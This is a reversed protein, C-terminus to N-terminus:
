QRVFYFEGTLSSAEWPTQRSQTEQRVAMRVAKFLLEVPQGPVRLQLLLHKTYPSNRGTGDDAVKGPSTAYAILCGEVADMSALGRSLTRTWSRGFPNNRCADLILLKVGMGAEDMRALVWDAAVTQFKVDSTGGLKAGIPVIYNLGELQAGHGSFYFLGVSGRPAGSTFTRIGEEMNRQSADRLLTVTFGLQRLLAAVDTADNVANRLPADPYAANGIM